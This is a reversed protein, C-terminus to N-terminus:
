RFFIRNRCHIKTHIFLNHQMIGNPGETKPTTMINVKISNEDVLDCFSSFNLMLPKSLNTSINETIDIKNFDLDVDVTTSQSPKALTFTYVTDQTNSKSEISEGLATKYFNGTTSKDHADITQRGTRKSERDVTGLELKVPVGCLTM